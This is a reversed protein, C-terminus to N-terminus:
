EEGKSIGKIWEMLLDHCIQKQFEDLLGMMVIGAVDFGSGNQGGGSIEPRQEQRKGIQEGWHACLSGECSYDLGTASKLKVKGPAKWM